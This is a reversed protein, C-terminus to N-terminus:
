RMMTIIESDLTLYEKMLNATLCSHVPLLGLLDGLKIDKLVQESLRIIGHEQSLSKVYCDKLPQGWRKDFFQVVLGFYPQGSKNLLRDKSLHIGGGYVVAEKRGRHVSVVPCALCVAIKDAGCIGHEYQMVDYFTFNGPRIEDVGEFYDEMTCGPTDGMSIIIKDSVDQFRKKLSVLHNISNRHINSLEEGSKAKYTHGAHTFLGCLNLKPSQNIKKIVNDITKTDTFSIGSRNYGTDIKVFVNLSDLLNNSLFEVVNVSEVLLNLNVRENLKNIEEIELINVPFAITIDKWGNGAFYRAMSVSSVTIASIGYERFWSGVEASQHTKFHPRFILGHRKAKAAMFEINRLCKQKDLLLTPKTINNM